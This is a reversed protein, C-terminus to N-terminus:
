HRPSPPRAATEQVKAVKKAVKAKTKGKAKSKGNPSRPAAKAAQTKATTPKKQRKQKQKKKASVVASRQGWLGKKVQKMKGKEVTKVRAGQKRARSRKDLANAKTLPTLAKPLLGKFKNSRSRTNSFARKWSLISHASHTHTHTHAM